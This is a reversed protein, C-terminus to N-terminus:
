IADQLQEETPDAQLYPTLEEVQGNGLNLYLKGGLTFTQGVPLVEVEARSSVPVSPTDLPTVEPVPPATSEMGPMVQPGPPISTPMEAGTTSPMASQEPQSFGDGGSLDYKLESPTLDDEVPDKHRRNHAQIFREENKEMYELLSKKVTEVGTKPDYTVYEPDNEWALKMRNDIYKGLSVQDSTDMIPTKSTPKAEKQPPPTFEQWKKAEPDFVAFGGWPLPVRDREWREATTAPEPAPVTITEYQEAGARMGKVKHYLGPPLPKGPEVVQGQMPVINAYMKESATPEYEEYADLGLREFEAMAQGLASNYAEPRLTNRQSQVQRLKGAWEDKIRRGEPSLKMGNALKLQDVVQEDLSKAGQTFWDYQQEMEQEALQQEGQMQRIGYEAQRRRENEFLLSKQRADQQALNAYYRRDNRQQDDLRLQTNVGFEKDRQGMQALFKSIDATLEMGKSAGVVGGVALGGQMQGALDEHRVRIAM